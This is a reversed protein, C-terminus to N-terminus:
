TSTRTTPPPSFGITPALRAFAHPKTRSAAWPAKTGALWDVAAFPSLACPDIVAAARADGSCTATGAGGREATPRPLFRAAPRGRGSWTVSTSCAGKDHRSPNAQPTLTVSRGTSGACGSAAPGPFSFKLATTGVADGQGAKSATVALPFPCLGTDVARAIRPSADGAGALAAAALGSLVAVACAVLKLRAM